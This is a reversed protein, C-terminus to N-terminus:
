PLSLAFGTVRLNWFVDDSYGTLENGEPIVQRGEWHYYEDSWVFPGGPGAFPVGDTGYVYANKVGIIASNNNYLTVDRVVWVFGDPVTVTYPTSPELQTSIFLQSYVAGM